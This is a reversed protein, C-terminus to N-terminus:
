LDSLSAGGVLPVPPQLQAAQTALLHDESRVGWEEGRM